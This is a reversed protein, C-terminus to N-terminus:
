KLHQSWRKVVEQTLSQRAELPLATSNLAQLADSWLENQLFVEIRKRTREIATARNLKAAAEARDLQEQIARHRQAPMVQIAIPRSIVVMKQTETDRKLFRVQYTQGFQLAVGIPQTFYRDSGINQSWIVSQTESQMVEVQDPRTAAVGDSKWILMPQSHWIQVPAGFAASQSVWVGPAILDFPGKDVGPKRPRKWFSSFAARLPNWDASAVLFPQAAGPPTHSLESLGAIPLSVVLGVVLLRPSFM